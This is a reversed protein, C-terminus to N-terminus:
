IGKKMSSYVVYLLVIMLAVVVQDPTMLLQIRVGLLTGLYLIPMTLTIIEYDLVTRQVNNPHKTHFNYIFRVIGSILGFINALPVCEKIPIRFFIMM